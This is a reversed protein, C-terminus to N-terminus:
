SVDLSFCFLELLLSLFLSGRHNLLSLLASKLSKMKEKKEGFSGLVYNHTKLRPDKQNQHTPRQRLMAQHTTGHRGGPDSGTFGQAASASREFKVVRGRPWGQSYLVKILCKNLLSGWSQCHFGARSPPIYPVCVSVRSHLLCGAHM